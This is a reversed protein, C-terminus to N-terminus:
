SGILYWFTFLSGVAAVLLFTSFSILLSSFSSRMGLFSPVVSLGDALVIGLSYPRGFICLGSTGSQGITEHIPEGVCWSALCRVVRIVGRVPCVGENVNFEWCKTSDSFFMCRRDDSTITLKSMLDSNM